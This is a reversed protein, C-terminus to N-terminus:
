HNRACFPLDRELAQLLVEEHLFGPTAILVANVDSRDLAQGINSVAIASPITEIAKEARAADIDVVATVEAGVIRRALREIHDTGIRGAGVVCVGLNRPSPEPKM